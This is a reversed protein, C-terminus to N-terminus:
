TMEKRIQNYSIFAMNGSIDFTIPMGLWAFSASLQDITRPATGGTKKLMMKLYGDAYRNNKILTTFTITGKETLLNRLTSLVKELDDIVHLLNLSIITKFCGPKFPLQLINGQLFVMNSPVCRDPGSLRSKAIRLLKLSQDFFIVPRESYNMYTKATFALSGCGADLIWGDKSSNLVKHTLSVYGSTSYGWMLRNYLPNCIVLDYFRAMKDFFNEDEDDPCASYIHPEILRLGATEQIIESLNTEAIM